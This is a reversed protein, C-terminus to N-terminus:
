TFFADINLLLGPPDLKLEGGRVLKTVISGDSQRSHVVTSRPHHDVILYHQVSPLGFYGALKATKDIRGTSPSLVEVIIMPNTIEIADDPVHPGCYVLADPEYSADECRVTIGDPLMHCPLSAAKIARRLEAQVGFKTSAHGVTQPSMSYVEGHHFEYRGPVTEYWAVFEQVSMNKKLVAAM